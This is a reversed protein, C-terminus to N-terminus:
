NIRSVDMWDLIAIKFGFDLDATSCLFSGVVVLSCSDSLKSNAALSLANEPTTTAAYARSNSNPYLRMMRM